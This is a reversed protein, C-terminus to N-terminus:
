ISGTGSRVISVSLALNVIENPKSGDIPTNQHDLVMDYETPYNLTSGESMAGPTPLCTYYYRAALAM